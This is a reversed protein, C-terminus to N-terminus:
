NLLNNKNHFTQYSRSPSDEVEHALSEQRYNRLPSDYKIRITSYSLSKLFEKETFKKNYLNPDHRDFGDPDIIEVRYENEWEEITQYRKKETEENNSDGEILHSEKQTIEEENKDTKNHSETGM